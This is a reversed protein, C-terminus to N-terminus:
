GAERYRAFYEDDTLADPKPVPADARLGLWERIIDERRAIIATDNDPCSPQQEASETPPYPLGDEEHWHAINREFEELIRRREAEEMPPPTALAALWKGGDEIVIKEGAAVRQLLEPLKERAEAITVTTM